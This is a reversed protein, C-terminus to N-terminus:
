LGNHAAFLSCQCPSRVFRWSWICILRSSRTHTCLATLCSILLRHYLFLQITLRDPLFYNFFLIIMGFFRSVHGKFLTWFSMLVIFTFFFVCVTLFFVLLRQSFMKCKVPNINCRCAFWQLPLIEGARRNNGLRVNVVAWNEEPKM